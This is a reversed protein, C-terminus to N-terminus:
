RPPWHMTGQKGPYAAGPKDRWRFGVAIPVRLKTAIRLSVEWAKPASLGPVSLGTGRVPHFGEKTYKGPRISAGSWNRIDAVDRHGQQWALRFGADALDSWNRADQGGISASIIRTFTLGPPNKPDFVMGEKPGQRTTLGTALTTLGTALTTLGTALEARLAQLERELNEIREDTTM